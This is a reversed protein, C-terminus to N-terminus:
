LKCDEFIMHFYAWGFLDGNESGGSSYPLISIYWEGLGGTKRTGWSLFGLELHPFNPTSLNGSLEGRFHFFTGKFFSVFLFHWRGVMLKWPISNISSIWVVVQSTNYSRSFWPIDVVKGEVPSNIGSKQNGDVTHWTEPTYWPDKDSLCREFGKHCEM